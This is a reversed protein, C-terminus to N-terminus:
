VAGRVLGFSHKVTEKIVPKRSEDWEWRDEGEKPAPPNWGVREKTTIDKIFFPALIGIVSFIIALIIWIM